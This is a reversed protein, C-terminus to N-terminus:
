LIFCRSPIILDMDPSFVWFSVMILAYSFTNIKKVKLHPFIKGWFPSNKNVIVAYEEQLLDYVRKAAHRQKHPAKLDDELWKDIIPKLPDLLSPLEKPAKPPNNFDEM